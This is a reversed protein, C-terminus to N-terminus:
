SSAVWGEITEELEGERKERSWGGRRRRLRNLRSPHLHREVCANLSAIDEQARFALGEHVVFLSQDRTPDRSHLKSEQYGGGPVSNELFVAMGAWSCDSRAPSPFGSPQTATPNSKSKTPM